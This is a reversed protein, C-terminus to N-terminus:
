GGSFKKLAIGIAAQDYNGTDTFRTYRFKGEADIIVTQGEVKLGLDKITDKPVVMSAPFTPKFLDIVKKYWAIEKDETMDAEVKSSDPNFKNYTAITVTRANTAERCAADWDLMRVEGNSLQLHWYFVATAKGKWEKPADSHGVSVAKEISPAETGILKVFDKMHDAQAKKAGEMPYKTFAAMAEDVKGDCLYLDVLDFLGALFKAEAAKGFCEIAKDTEGAFRHAQGEEDWVTSTAGGNAFEKRYREATKVAEPYKKSWVQSNLLIAMAKERNKEYAGRIATAESDVGTPPTWELYQELTSIAKDHAEGRNWMLGLWILDKGKTGKGEWYAAREMVYRKGRQKVFKWDSFISADDKTPKEKKPEAPADGEGDARASPHAIFFPLLALLFPSLRRARGLM